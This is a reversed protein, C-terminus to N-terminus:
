KLCTKALRQKWDPVGHLGISGVWAEGSLRLRQFVTGATGQLMFHCHQSAYFPLTAVPLGKAGDCGIRSPRTAKFCLKATLVFLFGLNATLAFRLLSAMRS